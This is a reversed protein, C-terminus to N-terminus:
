QSVVSKITEERFTCTPEEGVPALFPQLSEVKDRTIPVASGLDLVLDKQNRPGLNFNLCRFDLGPACLTWFVQVSQASHVARRAAEPRGM